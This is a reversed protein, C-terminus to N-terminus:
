AAPASIAREEERAVAREIRDLEIAEDVTEKMVALLTANLFFEKLLQSRESSASRTENMKPNSAKMNM